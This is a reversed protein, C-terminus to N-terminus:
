YAPSSVCVFLILSLYNESKMHNEKKFRLKQFLFTAPIANWSDRHSVFQIM